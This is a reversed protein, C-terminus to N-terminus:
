PHLLFPLSPFPLASTMACPHEARDTQAATTRRQPAQATTPAHQIERRAQEAFELKTRLQQIERRLRSAEGDQRGVGSTAGSTVGRAAAIKAAALESQVAALNTRLNTAEANKYNLQQRLDHLEAERHPEQPPATAAGSVLADPLRISTCRSTRNNLAAPACPSVSCCTTHRV